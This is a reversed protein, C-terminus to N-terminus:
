EATLAPAVASVSFWTGKVLLVALALWIVVLWPRAPQPRITTM